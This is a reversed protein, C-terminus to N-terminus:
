GLKGTVYGDTHAANPSTFIEQTPGVEVLEGGLMVTPAAVRAAQQLDHIVIMITM